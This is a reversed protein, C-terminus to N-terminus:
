ISSPNQKAAKKQRKKVHDCEAHKWKHKKRQKGENIKNNNGQTHTQGSATDKNNTQETRNQETPSKLLQPGPACV